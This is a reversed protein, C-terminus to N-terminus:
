APRRRRWRRWVAALGGPAVALRGTTWVQDALAAVASRRLGTPRDAAPQPALCFQRLPAVAREWTLEGALASAGARCRAVAEPDEVLRLIAATWGDVDEPALVEGAGRRAVADSLDDGRTCLIPLGAWLYDLLRVRFAFRAELHDPHASVGIDSELLANQRDAYPIWGPNFFVYRDLLGLSRALTAARDLMPMPASSSRPHTGVFVLRVDRRVVAVNAVARIVTLPDLWDWAGGGWLLLRDTPGIGPVVGRFVPRTARPPTSSLGFPVVMLLRDLRPDDRATDSNLRGAAALAGLWLDRQREGACLFADARRCLHLLRTAALRQVVRADAPAWGRHTELLELPVPDNLDVVLVSPTQALSALSLRFGQGVVVDAGRVLGALTRRTYTQVRFGEGAVGPDRPVGLVVEAAGALHRAMEWYRIGPAAM